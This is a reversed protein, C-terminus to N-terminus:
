KSYTYKGIGARDFIGFSEAGNAQSDTMGILDSWHQLLREIEGASNKDANVDVVFLIHFQKLL